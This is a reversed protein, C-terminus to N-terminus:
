ELDGASPTTERYLGQSIENLRKQERERRAQLLKFTNKMITAREERSKADLGELDLLAAREGETPNGGFAARLNSIAGKSLINRQNRTALVRPDKPNTQELIKQTIIDAYTGDFTNPNLSFAQKVMGMADDLAGLATESDGKMKVEAPTLKGASERARDEASQRVRLTGAAIAVMAEKILNGSEIKDSIYKKVFDNFEQTGQTFGADKAAKGAESQPQGSKLYETILARRDKMTEAQLTRLNSLDEKAGALELEAGKAQLQLQLNKRARLAERESKKYEGMQGAALGLNEGFAGTRTPAGFAAALRWYMESKDPTEQQNMASTLLDNFKKSADGVKTRAAAIDASYDAGGGYKQLMGLLSDDMGTPKATVQQPASMQAQPITEAPLLTPKPLQEEPPLAFAIQPPFDNEVPEGYKAKLDVLDGDAYHTKVGGGKAYPVFYTGRPRDYQAGQPVGRPLGVNLGGGLPDNNPYSDPLYYGRVGNRFELTQGSPGRGAASTASAAPSQTSPLPANIYNPAALVGGFYSGTDEYFQRGFQNLGRQQMEPRAAAIFTAREQPSIEEGFQQQWGLLGAEEPERGLYRRYLDPVTLPANTTTAPSPAPTPAPAPLRTNFQSHLYMPTNMLRNRYEDRYANYNVQDAAYAAKVTDYASKATNYNALDTNYQPLAADYAKKLPDYTKKEANWASLDARAANYAGLATQYAAQQEPTARKGPDKPAAGVVPMERLTPAVLETPAVPAQGPNPTGAYAPINATAVGYQRMIKNLEYGM